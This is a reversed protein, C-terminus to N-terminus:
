CRKTEIESEPVIQIQLQQGEGLRVAEPVGLSPDGVRGIRIKPGALDALIKFEHTCNGRICQILREYEEFREDRDPKGHAFNLRFIDVGATNMATIKDPDVERPLTAVIAVERKRQQELNLEEQLWNSTDGNPRKVDRVADPDYITWYMREVFAEIPDEYEAIM